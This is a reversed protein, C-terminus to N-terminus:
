RDDNGEGNTEAEEYIEVIKQGGRMSATGVMTTITCTCSQDAKVKQNYSDYILTKM